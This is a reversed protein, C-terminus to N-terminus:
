RKFAVIAVGDGSAHALNDELITCNYYYEIEGSVMINMPESLFLVMLKDNSQITEKSQLKGNKVETLSDPMDTEGLAEDIGLLKAEVHNFAKYDSISSYKFVVRAIKDSIHLSDLIVNDDGAMGNYEEIAELIFQKLEKESYYDKDFDEVIASQIKNDKQVVITNTDIDEATISVSNKSCSALTIVVLTLLLCLTIKKM